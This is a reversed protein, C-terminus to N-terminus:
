MCLLELYLVLKTLNQGLNLMLCYRVESSDREGDEAIFQQHCRDTLHQEPCEHCQVVVRQYSELHKARMRWVWRVERERYHTRASVTWVERGITRLWMRRDRRRLFWWESLRMRPLLFSSVNLFYLQLLLFTNKVIHCRIKLASVCEKLNNKQRNKGSPQIESEM